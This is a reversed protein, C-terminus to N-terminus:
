PRIKSQHLEDCRRKLDVVSQYYVKMEGTGTGLQYKKRDGHFDSGGTIVMGHAKAFGELMTEEEATYGSYHCEVGVAGLERGTRILQEIGSRDYGYELPHAIVAVGGSKNILRISDEAPLHRREVFYPKGDDLWRDFAESVSSIYGKEMLLQGIHPRGLMTNPFKEELEPISIPYGDAALKDVIAQNRTVREEIFWDIVEQLAPSDPDVFYGLIHAGTDLYDSSIEIGPVVEIGLRRGAELAEPVGAVTDHDTIAVARLGLDAALQVLETPTYTGDSATSHAHLDVRQEEPAFIRNAM